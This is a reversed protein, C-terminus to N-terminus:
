PAGRAAALAADAQACEAEMGIRPKNHWENHMAKRSAELAEMLQAQARLVGELLEVDSMTLVGHGREVASRLVQVVAKAEPPFRHASM